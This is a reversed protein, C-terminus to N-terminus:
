QYTKIRYGKIVTKGNTLKATLTLRANSLNYHYRCVGSSCTGFLLERQATPNNAATVTGGAGQPMGNTNYTFSYSVSAIGNFNLFSFLIGLRDPRYHVSVPISRTSTRSVAKRKPIFKKAAEVSSAPLILVILFIISFIFIRSKNLYLKLM